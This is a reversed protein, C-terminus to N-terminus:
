TQTDDSSADKVVGHKLELMEYVDKESSEPEPGSTMGPKFIDGLASYTIYEISNQGGHYDTMFWFAGVILSDLTTDSFEGIYWVDEDTDVKQIEQCLRQIAELTRQYSLTGDIRFLSKSVVRFFRNINKYEPKIVEKM